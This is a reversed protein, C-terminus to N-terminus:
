NEDTLEGEEESEFIVTVSTGTTLSGEENEVSVVVTYTVDSRSGGSTAENAISTVRGSVERRGSISVNVEDGIEIEAINEQPIELSIDLKSTDYYSVLAKSSSIVDEVSYNVAELTGAQQATIVGNELALLKEQGEKLDNLKKEASKVSNELTLVTKNYTDEAYKGEVVALDYTEKLKIKEAEYERSAVEYSEKLADVNQTHKNLTNQAQEVDKNYTENARELDQNAQKLEQSKSQVTNYLPEVGSLVTYSNVVNQAAEDITTSQSTGNSVAALQAVKADFDAKAAEYTVGYADYAAKATNYANQANTAAAAKEDIEAMTYYVNHSLNYTYINIAEEVEQWSEYKTNLSEDLEAVAMDYTLQANQAVSETDLKVYYADLKGSEYAVQVETLTDQASVIQKEYYAKAKEISEEAIKYLPTGEEVTDGAAVYVEEIYMLTVSTDFNVEQAITGMTTTGEASLGEETIQVQPNMEQSFNSMLAKGKMFYIGVAGGILVIVLVVAILIKAKKSLNKM